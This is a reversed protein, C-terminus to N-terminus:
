YCCYLITAAIFLQIHMHPLLPLLCNPELCTVTSVNLCYFYSCNFSTSVLINLQKKVHLISNVLNHSNSAQMHNHTIGWGVWM